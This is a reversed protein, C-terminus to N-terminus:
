KVEFESLMGRTAHTTLPETGLSILCAAVYRGPKLNRVLHGREGPRAFASGIDAVKALDEDSPVGGEFIEQGSAVVGDRIRYLELVHAEEGEGALEFSVLGSPVTAPLGEFAYEVAAVDVREWGCNALDFEHARAAAARVAPTTRKALDGDSRVVEELAKAVTRLDARTKAPAAEAAEDVLHRLRRAYDVLVRPQEAEDDLQPFAFTEVQVVRACYERLQSKSLSDPGAGGTGDDDSCGALAVLLAVAAVGVAMRHKM